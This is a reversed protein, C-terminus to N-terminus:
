SKLYADRKEIWINRLADPCKSPRWSYVKAEDKLPITHNIVRLPPLPSDSAEKCIPEAYQRLFHRARELHDELVEAAHSELVRLQTGEIPLAKASGVEVTTPNLGVRLQHQFFFPTGLILDYNLLNVVDFYRRSRISQYAIEATCGFNIKARSGQVALHVPLPKELEFTKVGLQNALRSSMFDALSGTDLLARAPHGNVDVVVIIPEPIRRKFDRPTGANRQIAAIRSSSGTNAPIANAYLDIGFVSWGDELYFLCDLEGELRDVTFQPERLQFAKGVRRAFYNALDFAPNNLLCIPIKVMCSLYTDLVEVYRSRQDCIFRRRGGRASPPPGDIARCLRWRVEDALPREGICEGSPADERCMGDHACYREAVERRFWAVIDFEPDRLESSLVTPDALDSIPLNDYCICHETRSVQYLCFPLDDLDASRETPPLCCYPEHRSLVRSAYQAYLDGLRDYARGERSTEPLVKQDFEEVLTLAMIEVGEDSSLHEITSDGLLSITDSLPSDTSEGGTWHDSECDMAVDSDSVTCLLEVADQRSTSDALDRVREFDPEVSYSTLGPAKGKKDSRVTQATPCQRAVHGSQKCLFCLGATILDARERESLKPTSHASSAATGDTRGGSKNHGKITGKRDGNRRDNSNGLPRTGLSPKVSGSLSSRKGFTATHSGKNSASRGASGEGSRAGNRSLQEAPIVSLALEENEAAAIVETWSSYAPNLKDRWLQQQIVLRLGRWLKTVKERESWVGATNALTELEYVFDRVSRSGQRCKDFKDRSKMRHSLSFCANFLDEFLQKLSWKWPQKSVTSTYFVWAKGTLFRSVVSAEREPPVDYDQIYQTMETMFRHFAQVDEEGNYPEPEKPKLVPKRTKSRRHKRQSSLGGKESDYDSFHESTYPSDSDGQDRFSNGHPRRSRHHCGTLYAIQARLRVNEEEFPLPQGLEPGEPYMAFLSSNVENLVEKRNSRDSTARQNEWYNLADRQIEVNLPNGDEDSVQWHPHSCDELARRQAEIDLEEEPIQASGWNRPDITKGKGSSPGEGPSPMCASGLAEAARAEQIIKFRQTIHENCENDLSGETLHVSEPPMSSIPEFKVNDHTSFSTCPGRHPSDLSRSRRSFVKPMCPGPDDDEDVPKANHDDCGEAMGEAVTSPECLGLMPVPEEPAYGSLPPGGPLTTSRATHETVPEPSVARSYLRNTTGTGSFVPERHPSGASVTDSLGDSRRFVSDTNGIKPGLFEGPIVPSRTGSSPTRMGQRSRLYYRTTM